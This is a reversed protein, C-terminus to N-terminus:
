SSHYDCGVTLNGSADVSVTYTGGSPCKPVEMEKGLTGLDTAYTHDNKKIKYQEEGNAIAQMSARCAKRESDTMATNYLVVAMALLVTFILMVSLLEMLTYGRMRLSRLKTCTEM